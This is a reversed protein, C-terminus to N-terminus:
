IPNLNADVPVSISFIELAKRMVFFNKGNRTEFTELKM